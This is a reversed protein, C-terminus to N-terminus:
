DWQKIKVEALATIHCGANIQARFTILLNKIFNEPFHSSKWNQCHCLHHEDEGMQHWFFLLAKNAHKELYFDM